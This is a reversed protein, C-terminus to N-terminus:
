DQKAELKAARMRGTLLAVALLIVSVVAIAVAVGITGIASAALPLALMVLVAVVTASRPISVREVMPAHLLWLLLVFLAVPLALSYGVVLESSELDTTVSRVAVEIGTGVAALAAFLFYHGYNWLLYRDRRNELGEAAPESFYLWWLAFLLVLGAVSAVVLSPTLGEELAAQVAFTSALVSEGLVLITFKGYREAIHHPHWSLRQARDAWLPVALEALVIIVFSVMALEAPLLLRLLWGVQVVGIGLAYRGATARTEPDDKVARLLTAILGIRLILYGATVAAFNGDDFAMPVGAALVLIGGMQLMTFLRYPVDDTDYASALWTFQNWAWWISFFVMLFPAIAEFAHGVEVAHTLQRVVSAVAVVFTLDFLLELPTTKRHPEDIDRAVVRSRLANM